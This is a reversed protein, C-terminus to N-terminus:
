YSSQLKRLIEKGIVSDIEFHATANEYLAMEFKALALAEYIQSEIMKETPLLQNIYAKEALERHQQAFEAAKQSSQRIKQSRDIRIVGHKVKLALGEKLLIQQSELERLKAKAVNVKNTTLFGNFLPMHLGIGINWGEVNEDTMLGENNLDNEWRWLTGFLAIKPLHGSKEKKVLAAAAKLGAELQKWDPNFQYADAILHKLNIDLQTSPISTESLTISTDWPLGMSNGLAAKSLIVNSNLHAVLSRLSEVMMMSRLYDLKTVSGTGETYLRKTLHATTELRTLTDNGIRSLREALVAGYYMRQIDFILELDTRRMAEKAADINSKAAAVSSSRLGGTYLPLTLNLNTHLTERDMVTVDQEPVQTTGTALPFGPINVVYSYSNEPFIFNLNEDQQRYAADLSLQPWFSSLAQKHQYEATEVALASIRRKQNQELAIDICKSLSLPPLFSKQAQVTDPLVAHQVLFVLTCCLLCSKYRATIIANSNRSPLAQQLLPFHSICLLLKKYVNYLVRPWVKSSLNFGFM